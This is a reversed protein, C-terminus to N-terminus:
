GMQSQPNAIQTRGTDARRIYLSAASRQSPGDWVTRALRNGVSRNHTQEYNRLALPGPHWMPQM